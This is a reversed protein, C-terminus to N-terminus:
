GVLAPQQNRAETKMATVWALPPTITFLFSSEGSEESLLSFSVFVPLSFCVGWGLTVCASRLLDGAEIESPDTAPGPLIIAM